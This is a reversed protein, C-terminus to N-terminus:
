VREAEATGTHQSHQLLRSEDISRHAVSHTSLMKTVVNHDVHNDDDDSVVARFADPPWWHEHTLMYLDLREPPIGLATRVTPDVVTTQTALDGFGSPACLAKLASVDEATLPRSVDLRLHQKELAPDLPM